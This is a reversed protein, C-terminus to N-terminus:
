VDIKIMSIDTHWPLKHRTNRVMQEISDMLIKRGAQTDLGKSTWETSEAWFDSQLVSIIKKTESQIIAPDYINLGAWDYQRLLNDVVFQTLCVVSVKTLLKSNANWIPAWQTKIERWITFFVGLVMDDDDVLEPLKQARIYTISEEIAAPPVLQNEKPNIPLTVIGKFPSDESQNAFGVFRLNPDLNLKVKKLREALEDKEFKIALARLHDSSVKAAKNNIVMFQFATETDDVDLLGVINIRMQPDFSNAGLVRHQGDVITGVFGENLIIENFDQERDIPKLKVLGPRFGIVVATPITNNEGVRFFSDIAKTKYPKEIRQSGTQDKDDLKEITAWKLIDSAKASFLVFVPCKVGARQVVKLCKYSNPEM